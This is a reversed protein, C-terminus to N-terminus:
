DRDADREGDGIGLYIDDPVIGRADRFARNFDGGPIGDVDPIADEDSLPEMRALTAILGRGGQPTRVALREVVERLQELQAVLEQRTMQDTPKWPMLEAKGEEAPTYCRLAANRIAYNDRQAM